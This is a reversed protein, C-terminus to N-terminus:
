VQAILMALYNRADVLDKLKKTPNSRHTARKLLLRIWQLNEEETYDQWAGEKYDGQYQKIEEPMKM